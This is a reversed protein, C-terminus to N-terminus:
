CPIFLGGRLSVDLLVSRKIWGPMRRYVGNPLPVLLSTRARYAKMRQWPDRERQRGYPELGEGGVRDPGHSMLFYEQQKPKEALPVGSVGMLLVMTLVPSVVSAVLAAKAGGGKAGVTNGMAVLWVGWWLCIEGFYNPRRSYRWLGADVIAGRPASSLWNFRYKQVDAVSECLWGLAFLIVGAVDNANGFSPNAGRLAPHSVKPSNLLTVPMTITWVWVLQITWFGALSLPKSRMQDFRSDRGMKFMRLLQFGGLRAAWVVVLVSAVVNRPSYTSGCALTFVALFIANLASWFDTITDTQLTYAIVFGLAQWGLSILLTIALYYDDLIHLAM